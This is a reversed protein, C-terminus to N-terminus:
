PGRPYNVSMDVYTTKVFSRGAARLIMSWFGSRSASILACTFLRPPLITSWYATSPSYSKTVNMSAASLTAIARMPASIALRPVSVM